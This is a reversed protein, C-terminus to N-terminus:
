AFVGNLFTSFAHDNRRNNYKWCAEAIHLPLHNKSYHHHQGHFARKVLSWFGEIANTHTLGDAYQKSHNIVAHRMLPSAAKYARYEDTILLSGEMSVNDQIFKLVGRGTLDDAVM